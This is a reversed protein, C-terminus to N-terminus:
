DIEISSVSGSIEIEIKTIAKDFNTSRYNGVAIKNFRKEDLKLNKVSADIKLSVSDEQPIKLKILSAKTNLYARTSFNNAFNINVSGATSNVEVLGVKLNEFNFDFVGTNSKFSFEVPILRSVSFSGSNGINNAFPLQNGSPQTFTYTAEEFHHREDLNPPPLVQSYKLFGTFVSTSNQDLSDIKINSSPLNFSFSAKTLSSLPKQFEVKKTALPNGTFPNLVLLFPVVFILFLLLGLGKPSSGRGLIIELGFLILLVPWFKWLNQWLDWSLIGFNNLLFVIGLLVLFIATFSFGKSNKDFNNSM